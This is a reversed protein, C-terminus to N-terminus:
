RAATVEMRALIEPQAGSTVCVQTHRSINLLVGLAGLTTVMSSGGYSVLPLPIGKAPLLSVAVSINVFSQLFLLLTLGLALYTGFLTDSHLAIRLGRWFIVLFCLVVTSTGIFGWEEAWVAFIFDTHPEPLFFLKQTSQALGKGLWGGSGVAILSQLIPYGAGLPDAEPDWFALLRVRRYEVRWVFFYFAPVSPLLAWLYYRWRLGAVFLLGILTAALVATTGFDPEVFILALILGSPVAWIVCDRDFDRLTGGRHSLFWATLLILVYKAGESPQFRLGPAAAIWRRAGNIEPAFLVAALSIMAGGVLIWLLLPRRYHYYDIHMAIAMIVLGVIGHVWHAAYPTLGGLTEPTRVATASYVALVGVAMLTLTTFILWRDFLNGKHM